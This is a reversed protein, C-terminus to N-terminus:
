FSTLTNGKLQQHISWTVFAGFIAANVVHIGTSYQILTLEMHKEGITANIFHGFYAHAEGVNRNGGTLARLHKGSWLGLRRISEVIACNDFCIAKVRDINAVTFCM